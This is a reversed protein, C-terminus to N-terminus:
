FPIDDMLNNYHDYASVHAEAEYGALAEYMPTYEDEIDINRDFDKPIPNIDDQDLLYQETFTNM